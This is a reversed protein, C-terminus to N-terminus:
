GFTESFTIMIGVGWALGALFGAGFIFYDWKTM